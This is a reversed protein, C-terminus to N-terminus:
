AITNLPLVFPTGHINGIAADIEFLESIMKRSIIKPPVDDGLVCGEKLAVVRSCYRQAMGIDHMVLAVGIGNQSLGSLLQMVEIQFRPDLGCLPEDLLLLAPKTALARALMVRMQEGHSLTNYNRDRLAAVQMMQMAEDIARQDESRRRGFGSIHPIRGLLVVHEVRLPWTVNRSDPLYAIHKARLAPSLTTGDLTISGQNPAHIGCLTKLLTSKGAGNPGIIGVM